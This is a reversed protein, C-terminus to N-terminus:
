WCPRGLKMCRECLSQQHPGQPTETHKDEDVITSDDDDDVVIGNDDDDDQKSRDWYKTIVRNMIKRFRDETLRPWAWSETCMRCRQQCNSRNVRCKYLDVVITAMHSSWMSGCNDCRFLAEAKVTFYKLNTRDTFNVTIGNERMASIIMDSEQSKSIGVNQKVVNRRGIRNYCFIIIFKDCAHM